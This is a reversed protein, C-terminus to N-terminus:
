NFTFPLAVNTVCDDCHNTTDTTGPVITAGTTTSTIYAEPTCQPQAATIPKPQAVNVKVPVSSPAAAQTGSGLIFVFALAALVPLALLYWRGTGPRSIRM